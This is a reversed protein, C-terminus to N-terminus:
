AGGQGNRRLWANLHDPSCFQLGQWRVADTDPVHVGCEACPRVASAPPQVPPQAPPQAPPASGPTGSRPAVLRRYLIWGVVGIAILLVLRIM